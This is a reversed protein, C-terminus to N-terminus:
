WQSRKADDPKLEEATHSNKLSDLQKAIEPYIYSLSDHVQGNTSTEFGRVIAAIAKQQHSRPKKKVKTTPTKLDELTLPWSVQSNELDNLLCLGVQKEQANMVERANSGINNTTALLLRYGVQSRNSENLFTDVDNKTISYAADYAKAQIAWLEGNHTEAILDIGKDRGWNDPWDRWLWVKKLQLAYRPDNELYWKCFHEFVYGRKEPTLSFLYNIIKGFKNM